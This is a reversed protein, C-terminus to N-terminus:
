RKSVSYLSGSNKVILRDPLSEVLTWGGAASGPSVRILKGSRSDKLYFRSAGEEGSAFGLYKLWAADIPASGRPASGVAPATRGAGFLTAVADVPESAPSLGPEEDAEPQANGAVPPRAGPEAARWPIALLAALALILVCLAAEIARKM